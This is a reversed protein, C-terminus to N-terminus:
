TEQPPTEATQQRDPRALDTDHGPQAAHMGAELGAGLGPGGDGPSAATGHDLGAAGPQRFPNVADVAKAVGGSLDKAAAEAGHLAATADGAISGAVDRASEVAEAPGAEGPEAIGAGPVGASTDSMMGAPSDIASRGLGTDGAPGYDAALGSGPEAPGNEGPEALGAGTETGAHLDGGADLERGADHQGVADHQGFASSGLAGPAGDPMGPARDLAGSAGGRDLASEAPGAPGHEGPEIDLAERGGGGLGADLRQAQEAGMESM